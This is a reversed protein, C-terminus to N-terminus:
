MPIHYWRRLSLTERTQLGERKDTISIRLGKNLLSIRPYVNLWNELILSPQRKSFRQDPTFHVTTVINRQKVVVALDAVVVGRKYKKSTSIAM